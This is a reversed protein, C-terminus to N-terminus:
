KVAMIVAEATGYRGIRVAQKDLIQTAVKRRGTQLEVTSMHEGANSAVRSLVAFPKGYRSLSVPGGRLADIVSGPASM